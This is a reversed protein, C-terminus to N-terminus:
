KNLKSRQEQYHTCKSPEAILGYCFSGYTQAVSALSDRDKEDKYKDFLYMCMKKQYNFNPCDMNKRRCDNNSM